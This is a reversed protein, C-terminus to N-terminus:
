VKLFCREPSVISEKLHWSTSEAMNDKGVFNYVSNPPKGNRGEWVNQPYKGIYIDM